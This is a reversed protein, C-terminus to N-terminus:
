ASPAKPVVIGVPKTYVLIKSEEVGVIPELNPSDESIEGTCDKMGVFGAEVVSWFKPVIITLLSTIGSGVVM